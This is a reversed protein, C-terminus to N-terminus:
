RRYPPSHLGEHRVLGLFALVVLGDGVLQHLDGLLLLAAGLPHEPLDLHDLVAELLDLVEGLLALLDEPADDRRGLFQLGEGGLEFLDAEVRVVAGVVDLAGEVQILILVHHPLLQLPHAAAEDLHGVVHQRPELGGLVM